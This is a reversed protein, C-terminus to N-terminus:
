MTRTAPSFRRMAAPTATGVTLPIIGRSTCRAIRLRVLSNTVSCARTNVLLDPGLQGLLADLDKAPILEGSSFSRISSSNASRM